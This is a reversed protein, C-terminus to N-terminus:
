EGPVGSDAVAPGWAVAESPHSASHFVEAGSVVAVVATRRAAFGVRM